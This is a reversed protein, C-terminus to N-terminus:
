APGALVLHAGRSPDVHEAFGDMVGAMDKMRDWRSAQVVLPADPPRRRVARSSTRTGPSGAQRGTAARSRSRRRRGDGDLLGVYGLHSGSTARPCRSTRPPSRISRRAPHCASPGAASRHRSRAAECLGRPTSRRSTPASSSGRASRGSTRSTSARRPLAVRGQRGRRRAGRGTGATQPDHILICTAETPGARPARRTAASCARTAGRARRRRAPRRRGSLRVPRQPHAQHDRLVGRRGRHGALARRDRRRPRVRAADAAAGRRRRGEATSNINIIARGALAAQAEEAIREFRSMRESGILSELRAVDIAQVAVEQLHTPSAAVVPRPRLPSARRARRARPRDRRADIDLDPVLGPRREVGIAIEDM